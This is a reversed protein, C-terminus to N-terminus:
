KGTAQSLMQWVDVPLYSNQSENYPLLPFHFLCLGKIVCVAYWGAKLIIYTTTTYM